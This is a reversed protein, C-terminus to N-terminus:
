AILGHGGSARLRALLANLQAKTENALTLVTALDTADATAVNAVAAGQAGIVKTVGIKLSTTLAISTFKDVWVGGEIRWLKGTDTAYWWGGNDNTTVTIAARAADTGAGMGAVYKWVFGTWHDLFGVDNEFYFDNVAASAPKSARPGVTLAGTGSTLSRVSTFAVFSEQADAAQRQATTVDIDAAEYIVRM